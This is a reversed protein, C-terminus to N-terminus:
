LQNSMVPITQQLFFKSPIFDADFVALYEGKALSLGHKLAGAKFGDRNNRQIHVISINNKQLASVKQAILGATEDTSDDLVQIELRDAPYAIAAVADLLREVVHLENYVPLQITVFPFYDQRFVVAKKKRCSRLYHFILHADFISHFLVFLIALAYLLLVINIVADLM